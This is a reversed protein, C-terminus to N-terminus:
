QHPLLRKVRHKDAKSLLQAGRLRRRRTPSKSELLHSKGARNRKPKGSATLSIRKKAGKHTKMKVKAM